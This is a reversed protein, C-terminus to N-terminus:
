TDAYICAYNYKLTRLFLNSKVPSAVLLRVYGTSVDVRLTSALCVPAESVREEDSFAEHTPWVSM